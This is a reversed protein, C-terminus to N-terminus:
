KVKVARWGVGVCISFVSIGRARKETETDEVCWSKLSAVRPGEPGRM